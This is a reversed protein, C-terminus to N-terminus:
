FLIYLKYINLNKFTIVEIFYKLSPFSGFYIAMHLATHDDNQNVFDSKMSPYNDNIQKITPLDDSRIAGLLKTKYNGQGM